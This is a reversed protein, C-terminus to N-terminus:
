EAEGPHEITTLRPALVAGEHVPLPGPDAGPIGESLVRQLSPHPTGGGAHHPNPLPGRRSRGHRPGRESAVRDSSGDHLSEVQDRAESRGEVIRASEALRPRAKGGATAGNRRYRPVKKPACIGISSRTSVSGAGPSRSWSRM